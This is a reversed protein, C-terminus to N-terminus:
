FSLGDLDIAIGATEGDRVPVGAGEFEVFGLAQSRVGDLDGEIRQMAEPGSHAPQDPMVYVALLGADTWDGARNSLFLVVREGGRSLESVALGAFVFCHVGGGGPQGAPALGGLIRKRGSPDVVWLEFESQRRNSDFDTGVLWLSVKAPQTVGAAKRGRDALWGAKQLARDGRSFPLEPGDWNQVVDVPDFFRRLYKEQAGRRSGLGERRELLAKLKEVHPAGQSRARERASEGVWPSDREQRIGQLVRLYEASAGAYDLCERAMRVRTRVAEGSAAKEAEALSAALKGLLGPTFLTVIEEYPRQRSLHVGSSVAANELSLYYDRMPAAAEAYFRQFFDELLADVDLDPDWLLRAAVYYVLGNADFNEIYQSALGALGLDRFGPIDRRLAHVIPWPLGLWSAKHYYEYMVVRDAIRRWGQLYRCADRNYPCDAAALAHNHCLFHCFQIVVNRNVRLAPDLPPAVYNQYAITKVLLDPVKERVLESVANAFFVLRRSFEQDVGAGPEDLKRCNACECFVRTDMPDLCVMRLSPDVARIGVIRAATERIVGPNSTCLQVEEGRGPDGMRRGNVLAYYEPHNRFYVRPPLIKDFTHVFWRTKFEGGCGVNVNMGNRRAWEGKGVWRWAFGPERTEDFAGIRVTDLRPVVEGIEGPLFWRVGLGKELFRSVAYFVSLETKGALLVAKASSRVLCGEESLSAWAAPDTRIGFRGAEAVAAAGGVLLPIGACGGSSECLPVQRGCIRGLYFALERAPARAMGEASWISCRVEGPTTLTLEGAGAHERCALCVCIGAVAGVLM